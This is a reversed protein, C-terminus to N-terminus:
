EVERVPGRDVETHLSRLDVVSRRRTGHLEVVPAAQRLGPENRIDHNTGGDRVLEVFQGTAVM